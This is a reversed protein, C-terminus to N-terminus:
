ESAQTSEVDFSLVLTKSQYYASRSENDTGENHVKICHEWAAPVQSEDWIHEINPYGNTAYDYETVQGIDLQATVTIIDGPIVTEGEFDLSFGSGSIDSFRVNQDGIKENGKYIELGVIWDANASHDNGYTPLNFRGGTHVLNDLNLFVNKLVGSSHIFFQKASKNSCFRNGNFTKSYNRIVKMGDVKETLSNVSSISVEIQANVSDSLTEMANANAVLKQDVENNLAQAAADNSESMEAVANNISTTVFTNQNAIQANVSEQFSVLDAQIQSMQTNLTSIASENASLKGNIQALSADVETQFNAIQEGTIQGIQNNMNAISANIDELNDEVNDVREDFANFQNFLEIQLLQNNPNNFFNNVAELLNDMTSTNAQMVPAGNADVVPQGAKTLM